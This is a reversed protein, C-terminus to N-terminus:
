HYVLPIIPKHSKVSVRFKNFEYYVTWSNASLLRLCEADVLYSVSIGNKSINRPGRRWLKADLHENQTVLRLEIAKINAKIGKLFISILTVQVADVAKRICLNMRTKTSLKPTWSLVWNLTARDACHIMFWNECVRATGLFRPQIDEQNENLLMHIRQVLQSRLDAIDSAFMRTTKLFPYILVMNESWGGLDSQENVKSEPGAKAKNQLLLRLDNGSTNSPDLGTLWGSSPNEWVDPRSLQTQSFKPDFSDIQLMRQNLLELRNDLIGMRVNLNPSLLEPINPQELSLLEPINRNREAEDWCPIKNAGTYNIESEKIFENDKIGQESSNSNLRSWVTKAKTEKSNPYLLNSPPMATEHNVADSSFLKKGFRAGSKENRDIITWNKKISFKRLKDDTEKSRKAWSPRDSLRDKNDILKEDIKNTNNSGTYSSYNDRSLESSGYTLDELHKEDINCTNMSENRQLTNFDNSKQDTWNERRDNGEGGFNKKPYINQNWSKQRYEEKFYDPKRPWNKEEVDSLRDFSKEGKFNKSDGMCDIDTQERKRSEKQWNSQEEDRSVESRKPWKNEINGQTENSMYRDTVWKSTPSDSNQSGDRVDGFTFHKENDMRDAWPKEWSGRDTFDRRDRIGFPDSSDSFNKAMKPPRCEDEGTDVHKRARSKENENLRLYPPRVDKNGLFKYPRNQGVSDWQNNKSRQNDNAIGGFGPQQLRGGLNKSTRNRLDNNGFRSSNFRERYNFSSSQANPASVTVPTAMLPPPVMSPTSVLSSSPLINRTSLLNSVLGTAPLVGGISPLVSLPSFAQTNLSTTNRNFSLSRLMEQQKEVLRKQEDSLINGTMQRLSSRSNQGYKGRNRHM